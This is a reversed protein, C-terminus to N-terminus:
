PRPIQLNYIILAYIGIRLLWRTISRTFGYGEDIGVLFVNGKDKVYILSDYNKKLKKREVPVETDLKNKLYIMERKRKLESRKWGSQIRHTIDTFHLM